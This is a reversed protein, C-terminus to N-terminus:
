CEKIVERLETLEAILDDLEFKNFCAIYGDRGIELNNGDVDSDYKIYKGEARVIRTVELRSASNESEAPEYVKMYEEKSIVAKSKAKEEVIAEIEEQLESLKPVDVSPINLVPENIKKKEAEVPIFTGSEIMAEIEKQLTPNTNLVDLAPKSEKEEAQVTKITQLQGIPSHKPKMFQKKWVPYYDFVTKFTVNYKDVAQKLATERTM